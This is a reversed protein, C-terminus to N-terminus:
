AGILMRSYKGTMKKLAMSIGLSTAIVIAALPWVALPWNVTKAAPVGNVIIKSFVLFVFYHLFYVSFSYNALLNLIKIDYNKLGQLITVAVFLLCMKHIYHITELRIGFLQDGSGVSTFLAITALVAVVSFPIFYKKCISLFAPYNMSCMMGFCYIPFFYVYQGVTIYTGTRTGLLPLLALALTIKTFTKEKIRLLFPSVVFIVSIFPIYWYQVQTDGILLHKIFIKLYIPRNYIFYLLIMMVISNIIYPSIVNTIKSKYYRKIEFRFSLYHFLFGSIFIFYITSDHFFTDRMLYVASDCPVRLGYPTRLVHALMVNVIAFARFYHMDVLFGRKKREISM